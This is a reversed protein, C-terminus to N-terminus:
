SHDEVRKKRNNRNGFCYVQWTKWDVTNDEEAAFGHKNDTYTPQLNDVTYMSTYAPVQTHEFDKWVFYQEISISYYNM